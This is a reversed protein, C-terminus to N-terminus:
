RLMREDAVVGGPLSWWYDVSSNAREKMRFFARGGFHKYFV